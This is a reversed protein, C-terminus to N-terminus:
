AVKSAVLILNKGIPPSLIAEVRRLVPVIWRDYLEVNGGTLIRRLLVFAVFWPIIGLSDFYRCSEVQFGASGVLSRLGSKTYRRHHGIKRDFDSMLFPCAPVFVLLAGGPKLCAHALGLEEGDSEIHELVNVYLIADFSEPNEPAFDGFFGQRVEARDVGALRRRLLPYMNDSPEFAILGRVGTDQLLEESFNGSGAGVEAVRGAIRKGFHHLIWRHYNRAFSMAELDRGFYGSASGKASVGSGNM